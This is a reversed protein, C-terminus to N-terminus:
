VSPLFRVATCKRTTLSLEGATRIQTQMLPNVFAVFRENTIAFSASFTKYSISIQLFVLPSVFNVLSMVWVYMPCPTSVSSYCMFVVYIINMPIVQVIWVLIMNVIVGYAHRGIVGVSAFGNKHAPVVVVVFPASMFEHRVEVVEIEQNITPQM